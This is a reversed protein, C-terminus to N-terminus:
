PSGGSCNAAAGGSVDLWATGTLPIDRTNASGGVCHFGGSLGLIPGQMSPMIVGFTSSGGGYDAIISVYATGSRTGSYNIISELCTETPGGCAALGGLVLACLSCRLPNM